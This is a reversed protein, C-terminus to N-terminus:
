WQGNVVEDEVQEWKYKNTIGAISDTMKIKRLAIMKIEGKMAHAFPYRHHYLRSAAETSDDNLVSGTFQIGKIALPNLRGPQITGSVRNDDRMLQSHQSTAATKFYIAQRGADYVYFCNFCYPHGEADVCCVSAIKEKELFASIHADM